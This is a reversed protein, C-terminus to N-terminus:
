TIVGSGILTNIGALEAGIEQLAGEVTDTTYYGGADTIAKPQYNDLSQHQELEWGGGTGSLEWIEGAEGIFGITVSNLRSGSREAYVTGQRLLQRNDIMLRAEIRQGAALAEDVQARTATTTVAYAEADDNWSASFTLVLDEAPPEIETLFWAWTAFMKTAALTWGGVSFTLATVAGSERTIATLPLVHGGGDADTACVLVAKGADFAAAIEDVDPRTSASQDYDVIYLAGGGQGDMVDFSQGTPHEADAITVRHGGAITSVQVEPSVGDAGDIGQPGRPGTGTIEVTLSPARQMTTELTPM